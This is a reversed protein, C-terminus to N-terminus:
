RYFKKAQGALYLSGCVCVARKGAAALAAELTPMAQVHAFRRGCIQALADPDMSRSDECAPVTYVQSFCGALAQLYHDADKDKMMGIVGVLPTVKAAQLTAALAAGGAPNHSGDVVFLPDYRLMEIRGPLRAAALGALIAEDSISFGRDCLALAAEVAVAANAAQHAGPMKLSVEYGGYDIHNERLTSWLVRIDEKEPQRLTIGLQRVRQEVIAQVGPLQEPASVVTCGPKFIGCKETAIEEPTKGLRDTHDLSVPLLCAVQTHPVVNTADHEGGMGAELCVFDCAAEAFWLFAAATTCEFETPYVGQQELQLAAQQVRRVARGLERAHVPRGDISMREKFEVVFPSLNLGTKYGAATLIGAIMAATSGKGNTGTVHVVQLSKQPDGLAACLAQMSGPQKQAGLRKRGHLFELAEKETM